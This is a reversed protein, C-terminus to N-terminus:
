SEIRNKFEIRYKVIQEIGRQIDRELEYFYGNYIKILPKSMVSRSTRKGAKEFRSLLQGEPSIVRWQYTSDSDTITAVWLREDDDLEMTHVAPWTDPKM